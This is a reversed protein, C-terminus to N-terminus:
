STEGRQRAIRARLKAVSEPARVTRAAESESDWARLRALEAATEPSVLLGADELAQAAVGIFHWPEVNANQWAARIVGEAAAM